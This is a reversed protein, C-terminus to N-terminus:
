LHETSNVFVLQLLSYLAWLVEISSILVVISEETYHHSINLWQLTKLFDFSYKLFLKGNLVPEINQSLLVM